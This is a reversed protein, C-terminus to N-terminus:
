QVHRYGVGFLYKRGCSYMLFINESYGYLKREKRMLNDMQKAVFSFGQIVLSSFAFIFRTSALGPSLTLDKDVWRQQGFPMLSKRESEKLLNGGPPSSDSARPPAHEVRSPCSPVQRLSKPHWRFRPLASCDGFQVKPTQQVHSYNPCNKALARNHRGRFLKEKLNFSTFLDTISSTICKEM